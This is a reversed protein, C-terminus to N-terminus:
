AIITYRKQWEKVYSEFEEKDKFINNVAKFGIMECIDSASCILDLPSADIEVVQNISSVAWNSKGISPMQRGIVGDEGYLIINKLLKNKSLYGKVFRNVAEYSVVEDRKGNFAELSMKGSKIAEYNLLNYINTVNIRGQQAHILKIAYDKLGLKELNLTKNNTREDVLADLGGNKYKRQWDYLKNATVKISCINKSNIHEIFASDKVKGKAREWEKIVEYKEFAGKRKKDSCTAILPLNEGGLLDGQTKNLSLNKSECDAGMFREDGSSFGAHFRENRGGKNLEKGSQTNELSQKEKVNDKCQECGCEFSNAGRTRNNKNEDTDGKEQLWLGRARNDRGCLGARGDGRCIGGECGGRKAGRFADNQDDKARKTDNNVGTNTYFEKTEDSAWERKANVGSLGGSTNTHKAKTNFGKANAGANSLANFGGAHAKSFANLGESPNTKDINANKDKTIKNQLTQMFVKNKLDQKAQKLAESQTNELSRLAQNSVESQTNELSRLAQNSVEGCENQTFNLRDAKNTSDKLSRMPLIESRFEEIEGGFGEKDSFNANALANFNANENFKTTANLPNAGAECTGTTANSKSNAKDFHAECTGAATNGFGIKHAKATSLGAVGGFDATAHSLRAEATNFDTTSNFNIGATANFDATATTKDNKNQKILEDDLWIQLIKGAAGGRGSTHQFYLKNFKISCFKKGAKEARRVAKQLADYKVGLIVTAEKSNIWM